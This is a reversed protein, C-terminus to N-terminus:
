VRAEIGNTEFFRDLMERRMDIGEGTKAKADEARVTFEVDPDNAKSTRSMDTEGRAGVVTGNDRRESDM